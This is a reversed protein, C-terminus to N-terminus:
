RYILLVEYVRPNLRQMNADSSEFDRDGTTPRGPSKQARPLLRVKIQCAPGSVKELRGGLWSTVTGSFDFDFGALAFRGGNLRELAKLTTGVGIGEYIVQRSPARLRVSSPNQRGVPDKWLVLITSRPTDPYIVSGDDLAGEGVNIMERRVQARGFHRQLGEETTDPSWLGACTIPPAAQAHGGVACCAVLALCAVTNRAMLSKIV